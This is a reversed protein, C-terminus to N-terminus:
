GPLFYGGEPHLLKMAKELEDDDLQDALYEDLTIGHRNKFEEQLLHLEAASKGELAQYVAEENDWGDLANYIRDADRQIDYSHYNEAVDVPPGVNGAAIGRLVSEFVGNKFTDARHTGNEKDAILLSGYAALLETRMARDIVGGNNARAEHVVQRTLFVLQRDYEADSLPPDGFNHKLRLLELEKKYDPNGEKRAERTEKELTAVADKPDKTARFLEHINVAHDTASGWQNNIRAEGTQADFDTIVVVHPGGSGGASGGRSDTFFPEQGTNVKLIVPMKGEAKAKELAEKLQEENKFTTVQKGEGAVYDPDALFIGSEPPQAGTIENYVNVIEDDNMFPQTIPRGNADTIPEGTKADVLLEGTENPPVLGPPTGPEVQRYEVSGPPYTKVTGDAQKVEIPHMNHSINVAAVQFLQSAYSRDGDEPPNIAEESGPRMTLSKKLEEKDLEIVKPPSDRTAYAGDLAVNTIFEAAASPNRAFMRAEVTAVNCTSHKGQDISSPFAAHHLIQEALVARDKAQIPWDPQDKAELLRALNRYTKEVEEPSLPPKASAARRELAEMDQKMREKAEPSLEKSNAIDKDLRERAAKVQPNDHIEKLRAEDVPELSEPPAEATVPLPPIDLSAPPDKAMLTDTGDDTSTAGSLYIMEDFLNDVWDGGPPVSGEKGTDYNGAAPPEAMKAEGSVAKNEAATQVAGDVDVPGPKRTLSVGGDVISLRDLVKASSTDRTIGAEYQEKREKMDSKYMDAMEAKGSLVDEAKLPARETGKEEPKDDVETTKTDDAL